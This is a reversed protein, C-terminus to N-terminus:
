KRCLFYPTVVGEEVEREGFEVKFGARELASSWQARCFLGEVHRDHVTRVQGNERLVFVFEAMAQDDTPDPDWSWEIARLSKVGDDGELLETSEAFSEKTADPMFLAVGGPRTHVFATEALARLEDVSGLYTVADHAIVADFTRALRLSRMDGVVHECEPNQRQSLALMEPSLDTLTCTFREKLFFANNGAGAGLELLTKASPLAELLQARYVSAEGAHDKVPDVLHYWGALESYLLTMEVIIGTAGWQRM